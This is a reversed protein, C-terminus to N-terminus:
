FESTKHQIPEPHGARESGLARRRRDPGVLSGLSTDKPARTGKSLAVPLVFM